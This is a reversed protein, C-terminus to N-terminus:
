QEAADLGCRDRPLWEPPLWDSEGLDFRKGRGDEGRSEGVHWIEAVDSFYIPALIGSCNVNQDSARGALCEACGALPPPEHVRSTTEHEFKYSSTELRPRSKDEPLVDGTNQRLIPASGKSGEEPLQFVAPIRARPAHKVSLEESNGLPPAADKKDSTSSCSAGCRYKKLGLAHRPMRFRTLFDPLLKGGM